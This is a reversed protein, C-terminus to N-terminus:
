TEQADPGAVPLVVTFTSGEGVASAVEIRGGHDHLIGFALSLGLGTGQGVPKTTFFPEFIRSMVDGPIGCGSDSVAICVMGDQHWTRVGIMGSTDIAQAANVLLNMLVQNIRGPHCRVPPLAGYDTHIQAKYKLENWVLNLTSQLGANIDAAQWEESDAHAFYKLDGVIKKIRALGDESETLLSPLDERIYDVDATSIKDRLVALKQGFLETDAGHQLIDEWAATVDLLSDVYRRMTHLNSSVFGVPNNIEHAVGAALLGISALKESQVLQRQLEHQIALRQAVEAELIQNKNAMWDRARKNEIQTRVRAMVVPPKIPKAIYDAAGLALGHEEEDADALATVFVVPIDATAPNKRLGELVAYGDMGPMMVDLLVLDPQPESAAARLAQEGSSAARVQYVPRLLQSLLSLNEPEDDVVLITAVTAGSKM